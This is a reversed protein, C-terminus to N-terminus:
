RLIVTAHTLKIIYKYKARKANPAKAESQLAYVVSCKSLANLTGYLCRLIQWQM